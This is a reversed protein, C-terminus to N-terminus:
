NAEGDVLYTQVYDRIGEELEVFPKDYGAAQLKSINAQTSYQFKDRINEPMEIFEVNPEMGRARFISNSLDLYTRAKGTGVNFIGSQKPHDLFFLIVSVIDKVYIFDREQGGDKYDSRYSKFLKVKGTRKIQQFGQYIMSAMKEKHDENPGYVNFFKLGVWQSPKNPSNLIFEDFWYKSYGYLNLPKLNRENDDFGMEGGGYTAASSAYILRVNKEFCYKFIKKSYDINNEKFYAEDQVTTDTCAGLHIILEVDQIDNLSNLFVKKDFYKQYKLNDLHKKKRDDNLDDVVYINTFGRDNLAKHVNSGIFGASGTIIIKKDEKSM